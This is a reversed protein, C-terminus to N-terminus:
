SVYTRGVWDCPLGHCRRGYPFSLDGIISRFTLLMKMKKGPDPFGVVMAYLQITKIDLPEWLKSEIVPKVSLYLHQGLESQGSGEVVLTTALIMKLVNTDDDQLSDSGPLVRQAFGTRTAAEMFTYLLNTQHTVKGINVLPYMIGIEEEYVRCLRLAEERKITWIPDKTPHIPPIVPVPPPPSHAPTAHATTLDDPLVDEAPTIGMNQLSSRAVDFNFASSTPGHFRPHRARPKPLGPNMSVLAPQTPGNCSYNDFNPSELSLKQSRLDNISTFLTNVQDQLSTIQDTMSRFESVVFQNAPSSGRSTSLFLEVCESDKFNNNCCNPAYRGSFTDISEDSYEVGTLSCVNWISTAAVSVHYRAMASSRAANANMVLLGPDAYILVASIRMGLSSRATASGSDYWAISIYRNRKARTHTGGNPQEAKRKASEAAPAVTQGPSEPNSSKREVQPSASAM